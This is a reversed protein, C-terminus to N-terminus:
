FEEGVVPPADARNLRVISGHGAGLTARVACRRANTPLWVVGDPMAAIEVPAVIVGRDTSVSLSGGEPVGVQAATAASIRARVPKATGALYEDGDQMRGADLLEHWTALVAEGESPSPAAGAAAAPAAPRATGPALRLLEDRAAEVTPLALDVDMEEALANLVRGDSIAGTAGLTREFPRRRGEWNVFRGKKEVAPAVPLVVDAHATVASHRIELSVIFGARELAAAARAPDATDAPDFAGVVLAALSGEAAAQLIGDVDRGPQTPV